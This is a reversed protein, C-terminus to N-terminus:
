WDCLQLVILAAATSSYWSSRMIYVCGGILNYSTITLIYSLKYIVFSPYTFSLAVFPPCNFHTTKWNKLPFCKTLRPYGTSWIQEQRRKYHTHMTAPIFHLYMPDSYFFRTLMSGEEGASQISAEIMQELAQNYDIRVSSINIVGQEDTESQDTYIYIYPRRVVFWLKVWKDHVASEQYTLYGRKSVNDSCYFMLWWWELM